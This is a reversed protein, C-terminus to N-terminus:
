GWVKGTIECWIFTRDSEPKGYIKEYYAIAVAIMQPEALTEGAHYFVLDAKDTTLVFVRGQPKYRKNDDLLVSVVTDGEKNVWLNHFIQDRYGGRM